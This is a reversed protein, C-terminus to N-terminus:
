YACMNFKLICSCKYESVSSSVTRVTKVFCHELRPISKKQCVHVSHYQSAKWHLKNKGDQEAIKCLSLLLCQGETYKFNMHDYM